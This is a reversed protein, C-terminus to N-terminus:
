KGTIIVQKMGTRGFFVPFYMMSAKAPNLHYTGNYRPMLDVKFTHKGKSLRNCFISVKNKFHERHVEDHLWSQSKSAYSCGAPIPIEIMVYDADATANVEVSLIVGTGATLRTQPVGNSLLSSSVEFQRSVKEPAPNWHEQWSSFYINMNGQKSVQLARAPKVVTDYPFSTITRSNLTLTATLPQGSKLLDPLITELISASEYTNRWYGPSRREILWERISELNTDQGKQQRLIKYVLLTHMINNSLLQNNEEGWYLNGMMSRQSQRLLQSINVTDGARVKLYLLRLLDYNNFGTTGLTDLYRHYDVKSGLEQLTELITLKDRNQESGLLFVQYDILAQKNLHTTYGNAEAMLLAKIVHGSIWYVPESKNWWGWLGNRGQNDTLARILQRLNKEDGFTQGLLPRLQKEQLLAILKSAMQENCNYEYDKLQVIEDLFVSAMGNTAHIRLASTDTVTLSFSTDKRLALFNGTAEKVGQPFIPIARREGDMFNDPGQITYKLSISDAAPVAVAMTDLHSDKVGTSGQLLLQDNVYFRRDLISSDPTYNLIKGIVHVTDGAIAFAPIALNTTLPQFAKIQTSATGAQQNDTVAIAFTQWNTIDDPFTVDFSTEGKENTRLRPQWFADDRFRQRLSSRTTPLTLSDRNAKGSVIIIAGSAASSGYLAVAAESKLVSINGILSPDISALDGQYPVGDIIILPNGSSNSSMGRISIGAVRGELATVMAGTMNQKKITSYGTVVIEQLAQQSATLVIRHFDQEDLQIDQSIFGVFSVRLTGYPTVNMMFRGEPNSITGVNTGNLQIAVGPLPRNEEDTILGTVTKRLSQNRMYQNNFTGPFNTENDYRISVGSRQWVEEALSRSVIDAPLVPTSHLQHWTTGGEQVFLSDQLLYRNGRLLILVRYWGPTLESFHLNEPSHICYFSPDDYRYLFLQKVTHRSFSTDMQLSLAAKLATQRTTTSQLTSGMRYNDKYDRWLSDMVKETIAMELLPPQYAYNSGIYTLFNKSNFTKEKILGQSISFAYGTEPTFPQSYSGQVHYYAMSNTLPWAYLYSNYQKSPFPLVRDSQELYTFSLQKNTFVGLYRSLSFSEDKSILPTAPKITVRPGPKNIDMSLFTKRGNATYVSDMTIVKHPTRIHLHHFGRSVPFSYSPKIDAWDLYAPSDDIWLYLIRQPQGNVIIFPAIQTLGNDVPESLSFVGDPHLFRYYTSTDIAMDKKWREWNMPQTASSISRLHNAYSSYLGKRPYLKGAYPISPPHLNEFKTTLGYATVDADKVPRGEMDKVHVSLRTTQGPFITLPSQINVNLLKDAYVATFSRETVQDNWIYQISVTYDHLTTTAAKWSLHDHGYGSHAMKDGAYISYWFPLHFRNQIEVFVSDRTRSTQCSIEDNGALDNYTASAQATKVTYTNAFPHLPIKAPLSINTLQITDGTTNRILLSGKDSTSKGAFLSNIELSDAKRTFRIEEQKYEYHQILNHYQAENSASLFQCNIEYDLTAAPFISDPIAVKTEGSPELNVEHYWLTDPVFVVPQFTRNVVSKRVWLKVRGDMVPLNNEDTAKLYVAVPTGRTHRSHDTRARFTVTSLEYEEYEFTQRVMVKRKAAVDDEEDETIHRNPEAEITLLYNEDLDIDLSDSLVFQYEYGGPRYPQLTTLITDTDRNRDSLRLLLPTKVVGNKRHRIFAKLRVTDGPKYKPKNLALFGTYDNESPTRYNFNYYYNHQRRHQNQSFFRQLFSRRRLQKNIQQSLDFFNLVENYRVELIGTRKYHRLRYTQTAADFPVKKYQLQVDANAITKGQIDHVLIALDNGNNIFKCRVNGVPRFVYSLNTQQAYVELYNGPPMITPFSATAPFTGAPTHLLKEYSDKQRLPSKRYLLRAEDDTLKYLHHLPSRQPSTTLLQQAGATVSFCCLLLLLLIYKM